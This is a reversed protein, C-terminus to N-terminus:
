LLIPGNLKWLLNNLAVKVFHKAWAAELFIITFTAEMFLNTLAAEFFFQDRCSGYFHEAVPVGELICLGFYIYQTPM